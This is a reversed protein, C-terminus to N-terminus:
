KQPAPVEMGCIEGATELLAAVGSGRSWLCWQTGDEHSYWSLIVGESGERLEYDTGEASWSSVSSVVDYVGSIDESETTRMARLMYENENFIFEVEGLMDIHAIFLTEAGDPLHMDYGMGSLDELTCERVPNPMAASAGFTMVSDYSEAVAGAEEEFAEATQTTGKRSYGSDAMDFAAEPEPVPAEEPEAYVSYAVATDAAAPAAGSAMVATSKATNWPHWALVGAIVGCFCAALAVYRGWAIKQKHWAAAEELIDDDISRQFQLFREDNM